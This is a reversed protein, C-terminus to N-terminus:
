SVYWPVLLGFKESIRVRLECRFLELRKRSDPTCVELEVIFIHGNREVECIRLVLCLEWRAAVHKGNFIAQREAYPM